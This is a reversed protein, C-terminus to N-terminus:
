AGPCGGVHALEEQPQEAFVWKAAAFARARLRLGLQQM